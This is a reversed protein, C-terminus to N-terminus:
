KKLNKLNELNNDVYFNKDFILLYKRLVIFINLFNSKAKINFSNSDKVNIKLRQLDIKNFISFLVVSKSSFENKFFFFTQM